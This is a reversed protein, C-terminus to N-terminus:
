PGAEPTPSPWVPPGPDGPEEEPVPPPALRVEGVWEPTTGVVARPGFVEGAATGVLTVWGQRRDVAVCYVLTGVAAERADAAPGQCRERVEVQWAPVREGKVFYPVPGLEAVIAQLVRPDRLVVETGSRESAREALTAIARQARHEASLLDRRSSLVVLDFFVVSVLAITLARQPAWRAPRRQALSVGLAGLGFLVVLVGALSLGLHPLSSLAAVESTRAQAFRVLDGGYLWAFFGLLVLRIAVQGARLPKM